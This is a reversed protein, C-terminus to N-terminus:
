FIFLGMERYYFEVYSWFRVGFDLVVVEAVGLGLEVGARYYSEELKRFIGNKRGVVFGQVYSM